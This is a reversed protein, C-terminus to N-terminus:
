FKLKNKEARTFFVYLANSSMAILETYHGLVTLFFCKYLFARTDLFV